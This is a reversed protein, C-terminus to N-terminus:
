ICIDDPNGPTEKRGDMKRIDLNANIKNSKRNYTVFVFM